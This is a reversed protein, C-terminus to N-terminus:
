LTLPENRQEEGPAPAGGSPAPQPLYLDKKDTGGNGEVDRDSRDLFRQMLIFEHISHLMYYIYEDYLLM